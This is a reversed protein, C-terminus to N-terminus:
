FLHRPASSLVVTANWATAGNLPIDLTLTSVVGRFVMYGNQALAIRFTRVEGDDRANILEPYEPSTVDVFGRFEVTGAAAGAGPVSATPDCFTPTAIVEAEGPNTTFQDPCLNVMQGQTFSSLVTTTGAAGATFTGQSAATDSGLLEVTNNVGDISGVIWDRGDLEPLGTAAAALAIIDGVRLSAVSAFEMEAPKAKTVDIPTLPVPVAGGVSMWFNTGRTSRATSM